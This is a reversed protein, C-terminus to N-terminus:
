LAEARLTNIKLVQVFLLLKVRPNQKNKKEEQAARILHGQSELSVPSSM